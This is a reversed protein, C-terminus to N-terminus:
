AASSPEAAAAAAAAMAEGSDGDGGDGVPPPKTGKRQVHFWDGPRRMRAAFAQAGLPCPLM